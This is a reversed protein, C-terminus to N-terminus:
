DAGAMRGRASSRRTVRPTGTSAPLWVETPSSCCARGPPGDGRPRVVDVGVEDPSAEGTNPHKLWIGDPVSRGISTGCKGCELVTYDDRDVGSTM